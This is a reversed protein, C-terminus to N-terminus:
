SNRRQFNLLLQEHTREIAELDNAMKLFTRAEQQTPALAALARTIQIRRAIPEESLRALIYETLVTGPKPM